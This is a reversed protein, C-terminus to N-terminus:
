LFFAFTKRTDNISVQQEFETVKLFLGSRNRVSLGLVSCLISVSTLLGDSFFFYESGETEPLYIDVNNM